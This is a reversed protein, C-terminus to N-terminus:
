RRTGFAVHYDTMLSAGVVPHRAEAEAEAAAGGTGVEAVAGVATAGTADESVTVVGLVQHGTYTCATAASTTM